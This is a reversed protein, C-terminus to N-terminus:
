GPNRMLSNSPLPEGGPIARASQDRRVFLVSRNDSYAKQWEPSAVLLTALADDRGILCSQINYANLL